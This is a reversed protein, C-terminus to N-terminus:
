LQRPNSFRGANVITASTIRASPMPALVAIKVSILATTSFGNGTFLGSSNTRKLSRGSSPVLVEIIAVDRGPRM